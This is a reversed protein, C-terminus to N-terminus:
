ELRRVAVLGVEPGKCRINGRGLISKGWVGKLREGEGPRQEFTGRRLAAEGSSSISVLEGAMRDGRGRDM